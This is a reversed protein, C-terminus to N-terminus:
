KEVLAWGKTSRSRCHDKYELAKASSANGDLGRKYVGQIIAASRFMNYILYFTWNDVHSRNAHRCYEAVFEDETPIGTAAFDVNILGEDEYSEGRYEQCLYGLDALGDGLTSLEWDLVAVIKPETPHILVNGLRYDGHVIVSSVDTPLNEPLWAMLNDMAPLDETRSAVYQKSWRSIQREYYNGPRGFTELGVAIPDVAHLCAMVRALDLYIAQREEKTANPLTTETFLRGEVMEMIYFKTGILEADECLCYMKPVPVDTEYLAHMVRYERDVQHASPLLEGPPQKRLVYTQNPTILQFTPNSQGGEFQRVRMPGAFGDVHTTLYNELASEDFQHGDRVATLEVDSVQEETM